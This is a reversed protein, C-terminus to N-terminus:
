EGSRRDPSSWDIKQGVRDVLVNFQPDSDPEPWDCEWHRTGPNYYFDVNFSLRDGDTFKVSM